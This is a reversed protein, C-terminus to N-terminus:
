HQQDERQAVGALDVEQTQGGEEANEQDEEHDADDADLVEDTVKHGSGDLGPGISQRVQEEHHRVDAEAVLAM